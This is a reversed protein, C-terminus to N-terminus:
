KFARAGSHVHAIRVNDNITKTFAYSLRSGLANKFTNMAQAIAAGVAPGVHLGRHEEMVFAHKHTIGSRCPIERMLGVKSSVDCNRSAASHSACPTSELGPEPQSHPDIPEGAVDAEIHRDCM